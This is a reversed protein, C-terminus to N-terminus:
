SQADHKNATWTKKRSLPVVNDAATQPLATQMLAKRARLLRNSIATESTGLLKAMEDTTYGFYLQLVLAERYTDPLRNLCREIDIPTDVDPCHSPIDADALPADEDDLSVSQAKHASSGIERFYERRLTTILWTKTASVEKLGAFGRWCRLLTEQVLDEARHPDRCLWRAYRYLDDAYAAVLASFDAQAAV